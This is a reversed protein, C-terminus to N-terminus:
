GWDDLTQPCTAAPGGAIGGREVAPGRPTGFAVAVLGDGGEATGPLLEAELVVAVSDEDEVEGGGRQVLLELVQGLADLLQGLWIMIFPVASVFFGQGDSLSPRGWPRGDRVLSRGWDRVVGDHVM